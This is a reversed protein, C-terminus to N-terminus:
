EEEPPLPEEEDPPHDGANQGTPQPAEGGLSAGELQPLKDQDLLLAITNFEQWVRDTPEAFTTIQYLHNLNLNPLTTALSPTRPPPLPPATYPNRYPYSPHASSQLVSDDLQDQYPPLTTSM